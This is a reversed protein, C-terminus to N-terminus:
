VPEFERHGTDYAIIAVAPEPGDNAARHPEGRPIHLSDGAALDVSASGIWHELQGELLYLTEDCNPHLHEPNEAGPDITVRGVTLADSDTLEGSDVWTITGWDFAETAQSAPRTVLDEIAM